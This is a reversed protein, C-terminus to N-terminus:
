ASPESRWCIGILPKWIGSTFFLAIGSRLPGTTCRNKAFLRRVIRRTRARADALREGLNNRQRVASATAGM